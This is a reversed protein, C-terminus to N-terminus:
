PTCVAADFRALDQIFRAQGFGIRFYVDEAHMFLDGPLILIGHQERLQRAFEAAGGRRLKLFAVCGAQAPQWSFQDQHQQMFVALQEINRQIIARQEALITDQARLAILALCEDTIGNCIATYYKANALRACFDAAQCAIWGVRVGGLGYAKSMVGLSIAKAYQTAATPLRLAPAYELLRFVEDSLVWAGVREALALLASFDEGSLMAGTPNHPFNIIILQTNDTIADELMQLDLAWGHATAQLPIPTIDAQCVRPIALLPEFCPTIVIVGDGPTLLTACTLYIAEVAGAFTLIQQAPLGYHEGLQERLLHHGDSVAYDLGLTEWLAQTPEDALSLLQALTRSQTSSASLNIRVQPAAAALYAALKLTPLPM